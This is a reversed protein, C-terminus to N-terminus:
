SFLFDTNEVQPYTGNTAYIFGYGEPCPYNDMGVLRKMEAKQTYNLTNGVKAYSTAYIYSIEGDLAGYERDLARVRVEDIEEGNRLKLLEESITRRHDVLSFLAPKQTSVVDILIQKQIPNLLNLFDLGGSGTIYSPIVYSHNLLAPVDKVYFAGFYDGQREPCFYTFNSLDGGYWSLIDGAFSTILVSAGSVLRPFSIKPIVSWDPWSYFGGAIMKDLYAKQTENLSAIVDAYLRARQITLNADIEYLYSSYNKVAHLSLGSTGVPFDGNLHRRFANMLPFRSLAYRTNLSAQEVAVAVLKNRQEPSLIYLVNNAAYDLFLNCHGMGNPANDRMSQFGFFDAVKGPPFFSDACANGTLFALGNFSYTCVQTYDAIAQELTFDKINPDPKEIPLGTNSTNNTKNKPTKTQNQSSLSVDKSRANLLSLCLYFILFFVIIKMKKM